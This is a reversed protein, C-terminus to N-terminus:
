FFLQYPSMKLLMIWPIPIAPPRHAGILALWPRATREVHLQATVQQQGSEHFYAQVNASQIRVGRPLNKDSEM